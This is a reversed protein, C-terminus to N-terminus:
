EHSEDKLSGTQSALQTIRERARATLTSDPFQRIFDQYSELAADPRKAIRDYYDAIDFAAQAKRELLVGRMDLAENRYDSNPFARIFVMLGAWAEALARQDNPYDKSIAYLSRARGFAAGEAFPSNPYRHLTAIYAVVALEYQFSNEYAQGILFQAEAAHPSRPGNQIIKEFLPIAREPAEFGPLFLVRGKRTNMVTKAIEFQRALVEDYNAFRGSYNEMLIQYEDFAERIKGRKDLTRAYYWQALPAEVSGPWTIVLSRFARGAKRLQNDNMLREAHSLQAAPSKKAPRSFSLWSHTKGAEVYTEARAPGEPGASLCFLVM